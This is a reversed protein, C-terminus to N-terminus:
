SMDWSNFYYSGIDYDKHRSVKLNTATALTELFIIVRNIRIMSFYVTHGLLFAFKTQCAALSSYEATCGFVYKFLDIWPSCIINYIKNELPM